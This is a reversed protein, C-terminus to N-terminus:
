GVRLVQGPVIVNANSLDNIRVLYHVSVGYWRAIQSLTDGRKVRYTDGYHGGDHGDYDKDQHYSGYPSPICLKQGYYAGDGHIGNVEALADASVGFWKGIGHLTDGKQFYHYTTCAVGYGHNKYDYDDHGYGDQKYDVHGYGDHGYGDQKYDVHGYGDHGYGDQKYDVYGYDDRKYDDYGYHGDPIHLKQGVYIRSPNAIGNAKALAHVTVGYYKAIGSLTQGAKVVHYDGDYYDSAMAATPLAALLLTLILLVMALRRTRGTSFISSM